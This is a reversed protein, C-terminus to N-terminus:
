LKGLKLHKRIVKAMDPILNRVINQSLQRTHIVLKENGHHTYFWNKTTYYHKGKEDGDYCVRFTREIERQDGEGHNKIYGGCALVIVPFSKIFDSQQFFGLREKIFPKAKSYNSKTRPWSSLESTYAFEEFDYKTVDHKNNQYEEKYVEEILLQYNDWTQNNDRTNYNGNNHCSSYNKALYNKYKELDNEEIEESISQEQGIILIDACPNGLGCIQQNKKCEELFEEFLKERNM